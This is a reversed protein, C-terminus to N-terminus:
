DTLWDPDPYPKLQSVAQSFNCASIKNRGMRIKAQPKGSLMHKFTACTVSMHRGTTTRNGTAGEREGRLAHPPRQTHRTALFQDSSAM